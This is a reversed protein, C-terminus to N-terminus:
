HFIYITFTKADTSIQSNVGNMFHLFFFLVYIFIYKLTGKYECVYIHKCINKINDYKEESFSSCIKQYIIKDRCFNFIFLKCNNFM